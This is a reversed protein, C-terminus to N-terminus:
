ARGAKEGDERRGEVSLKGLIAEEITERTGNNVPCFYHRRVGKRSLQMPFRVYLRGERSRRIQMSSLFLGGNILCSAWGLLGDPQRACRRIRVDSVIFEGAM